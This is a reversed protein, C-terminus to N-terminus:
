RLPVKVQNMAENIIEALWGGVMQNFQFRQVLYTVIGLFLTLGVTAGLSQALGSLFNYWLSRRKILKKLLQNTEALLKEEGM